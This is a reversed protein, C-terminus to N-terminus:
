PHVHTGVDQVGKGGGEEGRGEPKNRLVLKPHGAEHLSNASTM